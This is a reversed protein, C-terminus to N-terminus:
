ADKASNDTAAVSSDATAAHRGAHMLHEDNNGPKGRVNIQRTHASSIFSSIRNFLETWANAGTVLETATQLGQAAAAWSM